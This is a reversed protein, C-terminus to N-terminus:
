LVWPAGVQNEATTRGGEKREERGQWPLFPLPPVHLFGEKRDHSLRPPSLWWAFYRASVPTHHMYIYVGVIAKRHFFLTSRFHQSTHTHTPLSSIITWGPASPIQLLGSQSEWVCAHACVCLCVQIRLNLTTPQNTFCGVSLSHPPAPQLSTAIRTRGYRSPAM